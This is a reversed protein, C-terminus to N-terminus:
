LVLTYKRYMQRKVAGSLWPMRYILNLAWWALDAITICPSVERRKPLRNTGFRSKREEAQNRTDTLGKRSSTALGHILDQTSVRNTKGDLIDETIASLQDVDFSLEQEVEPARKDKLGTSRTVLSCTRGKLKQHCHSSGRFRQSVSEVKCCANNGYCSQAHGSVSLYRAASRLEPNSLRSYTGSGIQSKNM